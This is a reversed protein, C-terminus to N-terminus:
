KTEVNKEAHIVCRSNGYGIKTIKFGELELMCQLCFMNPGWHNSKDGRYGEPYFMMAPVSLYNGDTHTEIIIKKTMKCLNRIIKWPDKMHYLIGLCLILDFEGMSESSVDEIEIERDLVKSKLLERAYNFGEKKTGNKWSGFDSQQWAITDIAIVEKAGRKECVFSFYGDWAGIDLVRQGTLDEPIGLGLLKVPSNDEGKTQLEPFDFTHWFKIKDKEM